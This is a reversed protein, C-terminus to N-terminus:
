DALLPARYVRYSFYDGNGDAGLARMSWVTEGSEDIEEAIISAPDEGLTTTGWGILTNGNDLRLVSGTFAGYLTQDRDHSWVLTATMEDEDIEYEVVRSFPRAIRPGDLDDPDPCLDGANPLFAENAESGNDFLIINGNDLEQAHHQACPGGHPDDVYTFDNSRGGLRWVIEGTPRDIKLVQSTNRMSALLDGDATEFVSNIHAYDIDNPTVNDDYPVHDRSSWAFVVEGDPGVEEIDSHWRSGSPADEQAEPEYAMLIRGGDARLIADHDDTNVLDINQLADIEEFAANMVIIEHDAQGEENYQRAVTYTGNPQPKFDSSPLSTAFWHIPVGNVDVATEWVVPDAIRRLTLFNYGDQVGEGTTEVEIAPFEAPLYTMMFSASRGGDAVDVQIVDGPQVGDLQATGGDTAAGDVTVEADGFDATMEIDGTSTPDTRIAYRETEPDFTPYMTLGPGDVTLTGEIPGSAEPESNSDSSCAVLGLLSLVTCTLLRHM